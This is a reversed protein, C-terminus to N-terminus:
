FPSIIESSRRLYHDINKLSLTKITEKLLKHIQEILDTFAFM